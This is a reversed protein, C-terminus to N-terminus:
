TPIITGDARRVAARFSDQELAEPHQAAYDNAEAKTYFKANDKLVYGQEGDFKPSVKDRWQPAQRSRWTWFGKDSTPGGKSACYAAYEPWKPHDRASQNQNQNQNFSSSFSGDGRKLPTPPYQNKQEKDTILQEHDSPSRKSVAKQGSVSRKTKKSAAIGLGSVWAIKPLRYVKTQRTQGRRIKTEHLLRASILRDRALSITIHHSHWTSAIHRVSVGSYGREDCHKAYSVLTIREATSNVKDCHWAWELAQHNIWDAGGALASMVRFSFLRKRRHFTEQQAASSAKYNQM